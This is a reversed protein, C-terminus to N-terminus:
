YVAPHARESRRTGAQGMPRTEAPRDAADRMVRVMDTMIADLAYDKPTYVAAVGINRLVLEDEASIIGGVVLPIHDLGEVRMRAAVDRVLPVHSGSLISLGIMHAGTEAARAVIEAPTQRIGDYAVEMGVDRARLAIQEAGNSHGDLGPKGVLVRPTEGLKDGLDAVLLRIDEGAPVSRTEISVGTPARYQGFVARLADGWEGTTVGAKAAEISPPVINRGERAAREVEALAASAAAGDRASRWARIRHVAEMEVTEPVSLFTGEGATLPSAEGEQYRNVGVV